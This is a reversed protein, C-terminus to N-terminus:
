RSSWALSRARPEFEHQIVLTCLVFEVCSTEFFPSVHCIPLSAQGSLIQRVESQQDAPRQRECHDLDVDKVPSSGM